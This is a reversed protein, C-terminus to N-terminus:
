SLGTLSVEGALVFNGFHPFIASLIEDRGPVQLM